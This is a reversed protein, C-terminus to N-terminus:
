KEGIAQKFDITIFLSPVIGMYYSESRYILFDHTKKGNSSLVHEFEYSRINKKNYLNFVAGGITFAFHDGPTFEYSASIDLRHYDPLRESNKWGRIGFKSTTADFHDPQYTGLPTDFTAGTAYIWAASLSLGGTNIMNVIKIEHTHDNPSYFAEGHNIEKGFEQISRSLSYSLWGTYIGIEKQIMADFGRIWNKGTTFSEASATFSEKFSSINKQRNYYAEFDILFGGPKFSIGASVKDASSIPSKNQDALVWFYRDGELFLDYMKIRSLFQHYIGWNARLSILRHMDWVASLRPSFKYESTGTYYEFRGSGVLTLKDGVTINDHLWLAAIEESQEQDTMNISDIYTTLETDPNGTLNTYSERKSYNTRIQRGEIGIDLTQRDTIDFTGSLSGFLDSISNDSERTQQKEFQAVTSDVEDGVEAGTWFDERNEFFYTSYGALVKSKIRENWYRSWSTSFGRNGWFGSNQLRVDVSRPIWSEPTNHDALIKDYGHAKSVTSLDDKGMYLTAAVSDKEGVQISLKANFDYFYFEPTRNLQFNSISKQLDTQQTFQNFLKDYLPTKVIDSYSRRGSIFLSARKAIPLSFYGSASLMSINIGSNLTDYSGTQGTYDQVSALRGGYWSPLFNKYLKISNMAASNFPSFFGFFHDVSYIPIDDVVTLNQEPANGQVILESSSENAGSVGSIYKMARSIDAEGVSPLKVIEKTDFQLEGIENKRNVFDDLPVTESISITELDVVSDQEAAASSLFLLSLILMIEKM